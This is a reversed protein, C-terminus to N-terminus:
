DYEIGARKLQTRINHYIISEGNNKTYTFVRTDDESVQITRHEEDLLFASIVGIVEVSDNRCMLGPGGSMGSSAFASTLLEGVAGEGIVQGVFSLMLGGAYAPFGVTYISEHEIGQSKTLHMPVYDRSDGHLIAVDQTHNIYAVTLPIHDTDSIHADLSVNGVGVVHAATLWLNDGIVSVTGRSFGYEGYQNNISELLFIPLETYDYVCPPTVTRIDIYDAAHTTHAIIIALIAPIINNFIRM